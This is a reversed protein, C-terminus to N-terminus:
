ERLSPTLPFVSLCEVKGDVTHEFHVLYGFLLSEAVPAFHDENYWFRYGFQARVKLSCYTIWYTPHRSPAAHCRMRSPKLPSPRKGNHRSHVPHDDSM